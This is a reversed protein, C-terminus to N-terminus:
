KYKVFDIQLTIVDFVSFFTFIFLYFCGCNKLLISVKKGKITSFVTPAYTDILTKGLYCRLLNSKGVMADGVLSCTIRKRM